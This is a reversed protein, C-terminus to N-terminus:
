ITEYTLNNHDMFVEIKHGLLISQFEELTEVISILEKETMTYNIKVKSLKQSYFALPKVEQMIVAGLKVDSADTHITFNKSFDPYDLITEKAVLAKMQLFKKTCSPIWKIPCNKTPGCKTLETLPAFIDSRKPRLDRYYQVVGLIQRM